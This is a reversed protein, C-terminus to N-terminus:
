MGLYAKRVHDNELLEKGGGTLVIKGNELVYGRDAMSLTHRVNQEVLLITVGEQKIKKVTQFIERVLLPALGLSPEDLILIKPKLMLGRGVALMQQEGGSLTGALQKEREKLRPFLHYIYEISAKRNKRAAGLYSGMDLNEAVTMLPFVRRGEPVHAIGLEVIKHPSLRDIRRGEFEIFGGRPQLIGSIARLATSKGAGNSGLLALIEGPKVELSVQWLAQIDGYFVNIDKIKLM